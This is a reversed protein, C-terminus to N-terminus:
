VLRLGEIALDAAWISDEADRCYQFQAAFVAVWIDYEADSLPIQLKSSSRINDKTLM